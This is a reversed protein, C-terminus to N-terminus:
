IQKNIKKKNDGGVMADFCYNGLVSRLYECNNEAAHKFPAYADSGSIDLMYPYKEFAACYDRVFDKIGRHIELTVSDSGGDKEFFKLEYGGDRLGFGKFQPTPSGLMMEFFINHGSAASHFKFNDYNERQSFCYSFMEGSQMFSESISSEYCGKGNAGAIAAYIRCPIGYERTVLHNMIVAGSGAWGVDVALATKCDKLIEELYLRAAAREDKYADLIAQSNNCLEEALQEGNKETLEADLPLTIKELLGEAGTDLVAKEVTIGQNEKHTVFRRIYDSRYYGFGLKAAAFRSWYVYETRSEPYMKDYVQKLVDGDRALFLVKDIGKREAIGHIYRCYGLVAIGACAYGYEYLMSYKGAGSHFRADVVGCYASCVMASMDTPRYLVGAHNVNMYHFSEIGYKKPMEADSQMNDGVHIVAKGSYDAKILEYVSGETKSKKLENSLYLRDYGVFGNKHLIAEIHERLLYMDSTIIVCKGAKQLLDYVQKMYPNAFCLDLETEAEARIGEAAPIGLYREARRYIDKIDIEASGGNKKSELRCQRETETRLNVFDLYGLKEGVIYFLDTPRVFPRLILTDFIDFSVVDYKELREALEEPPINNYLASEAGKSYPKHRLSEDYRELKKDGLVYYSFNMGLLTLWTKFRNRSHNKKLLDVYSEYHYKITPKRRVLLNYMSEKISM